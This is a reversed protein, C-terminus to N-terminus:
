ADYCVRLVGAATSQRLKALAKAEIQRVRERTVELTGGIEELTHDSREGIGFRLRLVRLERPELQALAARAEHRMRRAMVADAPNEAALDEITEGLTRDDDNGAATELSIPDRAVEAGLRLLREVREAPMRLREALEDATPERGLQHTLRRATLRTKDLAAVVDVPIRITRARDAIAYTIAKRIWWKACTSFRYGRRHDFREVARMLGLNGEQILDALELGRNRYRRAIAAVLRLNSEILVRRAAAVRQQAARIARLAREAAALPLGTERQLQALEQRVARSARRAAPDSARRMVALRAKLRQQREVSEALQCVIDDITRAGLGLGMLAAQMRAGAPSRGDRPASAGSALARVRALGALLGQRAADEEDREDGRPPVLDRARLEGTQLRDQLGLVHRVALASGLAHAAIEREGEEVQTALEVEGERTLLTSRAIQRLYLREADPQGSRSSTRCHSGTEFEPAAGLPPRSPTTRRPGLVDHGLYV